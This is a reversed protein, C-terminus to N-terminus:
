IELICGRVVAFMSENFHMEYMKKYNDDRRAEFHFAGKGTDIEAVGTLIAPYSVGADPGDTIRVLQRCDKNRDLRYGLNGLTQEMQKVTMPTHGNARRRALEKQLHEKFQKM